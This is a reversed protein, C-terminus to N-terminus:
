AAFAKRVSTPIRGTRVADELLDVIRQADANTAQSHLAITVNFQTGGGAGGGQSLRRQLTKRDDATIVEEGGHAMIPMAQGTVGPVVGGGAKFISTIGGVAGGVVKAAGVAAGVGPVLSVPNPISGAASRIGRVLGAIIDKGKQFLANAVDGMATVIAGPLGTAFASVSVWGGLLGSLLGSVIESGKVTLLTIVSGIGTLVKGPVLSLWMGADAWKSTLGAILGSVIETGKATLLSGVAGIATLVHSPVGTLWALGAAWRAGIGGMMGEIMAVGKDWLLRAMLGIAIPVALPMLAIGVLATKWHDKIGDWLSQVMSVGVGYIGTFTNGIGEAALGLLSKLFPLLVDSWGAKIGDWLSQVMSVGVGYIGTFTNGIAEAALGLLSKLFPLLVDSWGAKIGDWLAGVLIKGVEFNLKNLAIFAKGLEVPLTKFFFGGLMALGDAKLWAVTANLGSQIAESLKDMIGALGDDKFADVLSRIAPMAVNTVSDALGQMAKRKFGEIDTALNDNLTNGMEETAQSLDGIAVKAPDLASIVAPGLDEWTTGFLAVGAAEQALPDSMNSLAQIVQSTAAQAAPGGAAIATTVAEADLGVAQLADRTGDSGDMLRIGFEKLADGVKDVNFAGADIAADILGIATPGEIGLSTFTAAYENLTPLLEERGKRGTTQFGETITDFASAMDPVLGNNVMTQATSIVEGFDQDFATAIDLVQGTLNSLDVDEVGASFLEGVVEQVEALSEGYADAYVDGAIGGLKAADADSLGLSAAVKDASKENDMGTMFANLAVAGLALAAGAVGAKLASGSMMKSLKSEFGGAADGAEAFARKVGAADGTLETELKRKGVM